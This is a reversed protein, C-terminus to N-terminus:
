CSTVDEDAVADADVGPGVGVELGVDEDSGTVVDVVRNFGVISRLARSFKM